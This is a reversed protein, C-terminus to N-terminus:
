SKLHRGGDVPITAGTIATSTMISVVADGFERPSVISGSLTLSREKDRLEDREETEMFDWLSSDIFGPRIVNCRIPAFAIAAARAMAETAQFAVHVHGSDDTVATSYGGTILTISGDARLHSKASWLCQHTTWLKADMFARALEPPTDNFSTLGTAGATIALHDLSGVTQFLTEVSSPDSIDVALGRCGVESAVQESKDLTRSTIIVSAGRAIAAEAIGRGM